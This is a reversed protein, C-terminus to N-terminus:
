EVCHLFGFGNAAFETQFLQEGSHGGTEELHDAFAAPLKRLAFFAAEVDRAGQELVGFEDDEVFAEGGKIRLVELAGEAADERV